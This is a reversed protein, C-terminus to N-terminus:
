KIEGIVIDVMLKIIFIRNAKTTITHNILEVMQIKIIQTELM